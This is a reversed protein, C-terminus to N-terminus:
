YQVLRKALFFVVLTTATGVYYFIRIGLVIVIPLPLSWAIRYVSANLFQEGLQRAVDKMRQVIGDM